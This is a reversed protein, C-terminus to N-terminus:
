VPPADPVDDGPDAGEIVGTELADNVLAFVRKAEIAAIINSNTMTKDAEVGEDAAIALLEVKNKGTLAPPDHPVSGGPEGDGDHDLPGVVEASGSEVHPEALDDRLEGVDGKNFVRMAGDFATFTRLAKIKM